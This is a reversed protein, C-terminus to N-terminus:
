SLTCELTKQTLLEVLWRGHGRWYVRETGLSAGSICGQGVVRRTWNEGPQPSSHVPEVETEWGM